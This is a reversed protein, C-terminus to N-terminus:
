RCGLELGKFSQCAVDPRAGGMELAPWQGRHGKREELLCSFAADREVASGERDLLSRGKESGPGSRTGRLDKHVGDGWVVRATHM